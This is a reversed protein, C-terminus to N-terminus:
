RFSRRHKAIQLKAVRTPRHTHMDHPVSLLLLFNLGGGGGERKREGEGGMCLYFGPSAPLFCVLDKWILFSQGRAGLERGPLQFYYKGGVGM